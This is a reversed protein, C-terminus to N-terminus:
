NASREQVSHACAVCNGTRASGGAVHSIRGLETRGSALVGALLGIAFTEVVVKIVGAFLPTRLHPV